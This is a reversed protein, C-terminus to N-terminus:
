NINELKLDQKSLPLDENEVIMRSGDRLQVAIHKGPVLQLGSYTNIHTCINSMWQLIRAKSCKFAIDRKEHYMCGLGQGYMESELIEHVSMGSRLNRQDLHLNLKKKVELLLREISGIKFISKLHEADVKPFATSYLRELSSKTKMMDTVIDSELTYLYPLDLAGEQLDTLNTGDKLFTTFEMLINQYDDPHEQWCSIQHFEDSFQRMGGAFGRPYIKSLGIIQHYTRSVGNLLNFELAAIEAPFYYQEGNHTHCNIHLLVFKKNFLEQNNPICEFMNTIYKQMNWFDYSNNQLDTIQKM